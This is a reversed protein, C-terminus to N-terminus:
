REVRSIELRDFDIIGKVMQRFKLGKGGPTLSNRLVKQKRQFCAAEDRM